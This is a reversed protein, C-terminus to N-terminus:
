RGEFVVRTVFGKCKRPGDAQAGAAWINLASVMTGGETKQELDGSLYLMRQLATRRLVTKFQLGKGVWWCEDHRAESRRCLM